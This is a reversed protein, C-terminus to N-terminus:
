LGVAGGHSLALVFYGLPTGTLVTAYTLPRSGTFHDMALFM